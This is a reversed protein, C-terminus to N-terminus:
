DKTLHVEELKKLAEKVAKRVMPDKDKLFERLPEIARKDGIEGLAKAVEVRVDEDERLLKILPIVAKKSRIMGLAKVASQRIDSDLDELSEVLTKVASKGMRVLENFKKTWLFFQAKEEIHEPEWELRYLSKALVKRLFLLDIPKASKLLQVLPKIARKDGIKGLAQAAEIVLDLEEAKLAKILPRVAKKSGIKGLAKAAGSSVRWKFEEVDPPDGSTDWEWFGLIEILPDVAEEDGIKGLAELTADIVDWDEDKINGLVQILPRVAKKDGIKGLAEAAAKRVYSDKDKLRQILPRVANKDGINGLAKAAQARVGPKRDKLVHILSDVSREDKIEGLAKIAEKRVRENKDDLLQILPEVVSKDGIKGLVSAGKERVFVDDDKLSKVIFEVATKGMKSLKEYERILLFFKVKKETSKPEWGLKDLIEAIRTRIEINKDDLAKVLPKITVKGIELLGRQASMVVFYNEDKLARILPEVVRKGGMKGLTDVANQRVMPDKDDLAKIYKELEKNNM